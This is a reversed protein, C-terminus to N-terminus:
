SFCQFGCHINYVNLCVFSFNLSFPQTLFLSLRHNQCCNCTIRSYHNRKQLIRLFMSSQVSRFSRVFCLFGTFHTVTPSPFLVVLVLVIWTVFGCWDFCIIIIFLSCVFFRLIKFPNTGIQQRPKPRPMWAMITM